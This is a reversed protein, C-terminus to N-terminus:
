TNTSLYKLLIYIHIYMYCLAQESQMYSRLCIEHKGIWKMALHHILM